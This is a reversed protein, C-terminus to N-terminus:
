PSRGAEVAALYIFSTPQPLMDLMTSAYRVPTQGTITCAVHTHTHTHRHRHRHAHTNNPARAGRVAAANCLSAQPTTNQVPHGRRRLTSAVLSPAPPCSLPRATLWLWRRCWVSQSTTKDWSMLEVTRVLPWRDGRMMERAKVTVLRAPQARVGDDSCGRSSGSAPKSLERM